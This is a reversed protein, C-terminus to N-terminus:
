CHTFSWSLNCDTNIWAEVTAGGWFLGIVRSEGINDGGWGGIPLWLEVFIGMKDFRIYGTVPM